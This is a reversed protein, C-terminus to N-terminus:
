ELPSHPEGLLLDLQEKTLQITGDREDEELVEGFLVNENFYGNRPVGVPIPGEDEFEMIAVNDDDDVFYWATSMSHTAPYEKDTKM